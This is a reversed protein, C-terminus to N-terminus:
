NKVQKSNQKLPYILIKIYGTAIRQLFGQDIHFVCFKFHVFPLPLDSFIGPESIDVNRQKYCSLLHNTGFLAFKGLGVIAFNPIQNDLLEEKDELDMLNRMLVDLPIGKCPGTPSIVKPRKWNTSISKQFKNM